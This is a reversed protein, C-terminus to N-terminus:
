LEFAIDSFNVWGGSQVGTVNSLEQNHPGMEFDVM